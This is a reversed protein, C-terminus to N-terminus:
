SFDANDIKEINYIKEAQQVTGGTQIKIESGQVDQIAINGNGTVTMQNRKGAVQANLVGEVQQKLAPNSEAQEEVERVLDILAYRLKNKEVNADDVNITGRRIQQMLDTLRASQGIAEDLLPSGQLLLQLDHIAQKLDDKAILQLIAAAFAPINNM